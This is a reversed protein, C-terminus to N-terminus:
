KSASKSLKIQKCAWDNAVDSQMFFIADPVRVNHYVSTTRKVHDTCIVTELRSVARAPFTAAIFILILLSKM